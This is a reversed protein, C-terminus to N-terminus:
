SKLHELWTELDVVFWEPEDIPVAIGARLLREEAQDLNIYRALWGRRLAALPLTAEGPSPSRYVRIDPHGPQKLGAVLEPLLAGLRDVADKSDFWAVADELLRVQEATSIRVESM